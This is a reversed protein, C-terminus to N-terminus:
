QIFIFNLSPAVQNKEADFRLREQRTLDEYAKAFVVEETDAFHKSLRGKGIEAIGTLHLEQDIDTFQENESM